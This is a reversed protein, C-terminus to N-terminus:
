FDGSLTLVAGEARYDQSSDLEQDYEYRYWGLNLWFGSYLRASIRPEVFYYDIPFSGRSDTIRGRLSGKFRDSFQYTTNLFYYNNDFNWVSIATTAPPCPFGTCFAINISSDFDVLTYGTSLWLRERSYDASISYTRSDVNNRADPNPNEEDRYRATLNFTWHDNPRYRGNLRVMNFEAPNVRLFVNDVEGDWYELFVSWKRDYRFKVSGFFTDASQDGDEESETITTTMLINDTESNEFGADRETRIHGGRLTWRRNLLWEAEIRNSWSSWDTLRSFTIAESTLVGGVNRDLDELTEGDIEYDRYRLIDHLYVSDSLRISLGMEALSSPLDSNYRTSVTETVPPGVGTFWTGVASQFSSGETEGDSYVLRLSLDVRDAFAAHASARTIWYTGDLPAARTFSSLTSNNGPNNGATAGPPVAFDSQSDLERYSQEFSLDWRGVEFDIGARIDDTERHVPAFLLFEDRAFDQSLTAPGDAERHKYGVYVRTKGPNLELLTDFTNIDNNNIHQGLAFDPVNFFYNVKNWRVDWRYVGRKRMTLNLWEQPDGGLGSSNIILTDLFRSAPGKPTGVLSLNFLRMGEQLNVQSRYLPESGTLDLTRYGVEASVKWEMTASRLPELPWTEAATAPIIFSLSVSAVVAVLRVRLRALM